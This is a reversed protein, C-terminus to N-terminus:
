GAPTEPLDRAVAAAVGTPRPYVLEMLPPLNPGDMAGPRWGTVVTVAAISVEFWAQVSGPEGATSALAQV